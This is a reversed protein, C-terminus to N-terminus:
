GAPGNKKWVYRFLLVRLAAALPIALLGGLIGGLLTIGVMLAIIVMLPHLGVRNGMIRPSYLFSELSQVGIFLALVVVPHLWDGFQMVTLILTLICLVTAGIVPVMVLIVALFGVLFAYDLGLALLGITYLVGSILAVIVQGRFFAIMYQNIALLIFIIEDKIRSNRVPLYDTWHRKIERKERLFYFTYIPILILAIALDLLSTAKGLLTLLWNGIKPLLESLWIRASSLIQRHIQQAPAFPTAISGNGAAGNTGPEMMGREGPTAPGEIMVASNTSSTAGGSWSELEQQARQTLGPIKSVLNNTEQILQPIVSAFVGAVICVMSVFVIIIAWIRRIKHRELWNVPPDLLYALVAAIALPWLVPSLLDLIRGIGWVVAVTIAAIVAVSLATLAFWIIRWQNENPIKHNM